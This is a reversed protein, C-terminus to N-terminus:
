VIKHGFLTEDFIFTEERFRERFTRSLWVSNRSGDYHGDSGPSAIIVYPTCNQSENSNLIILNKSVKGVMNAYSSPLCFLQYELLYGLRYKSKPSYRRTLAPNKKVFIQCDANFNVM